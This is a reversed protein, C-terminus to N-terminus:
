YASPETRQDRFVSTWKLQVYLGTRVQCLIGETDIM